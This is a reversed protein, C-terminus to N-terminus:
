VWQVLPGRRSRAWEVMVRVASVRRRTITQSEEFSAALESLRRVTVSRTHEAGVGALSVRRYTQSKTHEAAVAAALSLRRIAGPRAEVISVIKSLRRVMLRGGAWGAAWGSGCGELCNPNLVYDSGVHRNYNSGLSLAGSKYVTGGTKVVLKCQDGAAGTSRVSAEVFVRRITKNKGDFAGLAYLVYEGATGSENYSTDGDSPVEDVQQQLAYQRQTSENNQLVQHFISQRVYLFSDRVLQAPTVKTQSGAFSTLSSM